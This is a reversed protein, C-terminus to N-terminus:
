VYTWPELSTVSKAWFGFKYRTSETDTSYHIRGGIGCIGLYPDRARKRDRRSRFGNVPLLASLIQVDHKWGGTTTNLEGHFKVDM